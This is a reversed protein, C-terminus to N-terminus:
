VTFGLEFHSCHRVETRESYCWGTCCCVLCNQVSSHVSMCKLARWHEKMQLLSVVQVWSLFLCVPFVDLLHGNPHSVEVLFIFRKLHPFFFDSKWKEQFTSSVCIQGSEKHIYTYMFMYVCMGEDVGLVAHM